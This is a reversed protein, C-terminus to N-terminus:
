IEPASVRQPTPGPSGRHGSQHQRVVYSSRRAHLGQGETDRRGQGPPLLGPRSDAARAPRSRHGTSLRAHGGARGCLALPAPFKVEKVVLGFRKAQRMWTQRLSGHEFATHLIEDGPKLDLGQCLVTNGETTNRTIAVEEVGADLFAAAKLRIQEQREQFINSNENPNVAMLRWYETLAEYVPRPTPGLTGTNLYAFGPELLFQNRVKEWYGDDHRWGEPPAVAQLAAAFSQKVQTLTTAAAASGGMFGRLWHRRSVNGEM